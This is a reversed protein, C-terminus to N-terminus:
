YITHSKGYPFFGADSVYSLRINPIRKKIEAAVTLGGSGSDFVLISSDMAGVKVYDVCKMKGYVCLTLRIPM